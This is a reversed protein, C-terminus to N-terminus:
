RMIISTVRVEARFLLIGFIIFINSIWGCNWLSVLIIYIADFLYKLTYLSDVNTHSSPGYEFSKIEDGVHIISIVELIVFMMLLEM